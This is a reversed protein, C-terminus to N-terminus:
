ESVLPVLLSVSKANEMSQQIVLPASVSASTILSSPSSARQIAPHVSSLTEKATLVHITVSHVHLAKLRRTSAVLATKWASVKVQYEILTTQPVYIVSMRIRMKALLAHFTVSSAFTIPNMIVVTAM